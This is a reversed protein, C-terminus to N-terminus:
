PELVPTEGIASIMAATKQVHSQPGTPRTSAVGSVTQRTTM